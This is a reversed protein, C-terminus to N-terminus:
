DKYHKHEDNYVDEETAGDGSTLFRGVKDKLKPLLTIANPSVGGTKMLWRGKGGMSEWHTDEEYKNKNDNFKLIRYVNIDKDQNIDWAAKLVWRLADHFTEFAYIYGKKSLTGGMRNKTFGLRSKNPIIGNKLIKQVNEAATVHYLIDPAEEGTEEVAEIFKRFREIKHVM